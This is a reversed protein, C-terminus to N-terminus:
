NFRKKRISSIISVIIFVFIFLSIMIIFFNPKIQFTFASNGDMEFSLSNFLLDNNSKAQFLHYFFVAALLMPYGLFAIFSGFIAGHKLSELKMM